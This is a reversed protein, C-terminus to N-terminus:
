SPSAARTRPRSTGSSQATVNALEQSDVARLTNTQRMSAVEERLAENASSLQMVANSSSELTLAPGSESLETPPAPM